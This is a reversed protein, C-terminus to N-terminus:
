QVHHRIQILIPMSNSLILGSLLIGQGSTEFIYRLLHDLAFRHLSTPNQMFQSLTQVAFSIDPRTNCLFNLNGVYTRYGIPVLIM